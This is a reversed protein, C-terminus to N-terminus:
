KNKAASAADFQRAADSFSEDLVGYADIFGQKVQDWADASGHKMGGYWQAVDNRQKRLARLTAKRKQRASKRLKAWEDATRAELTEIRADMAELVEAGKALAQERQAVSYSKLAKAAQAWERKVDQIDAASAPASKAGADAAHAPLAAAVSVASFLSAAILARLRVQLNSPM